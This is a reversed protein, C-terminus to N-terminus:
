FIEEHNLPVHSIIAKLFKGDLLFSFVPLCADVICPKIHYTYLSHYLWFKILRSYYFFLYYGANLLIHLFQVKGCQQHFRSVVCGSQFVTLCNRLPTFTSYNNSRPIGHRPIYELSFIYECLINYIFTGWLHFCVLYGDVLSHIFLIHYM